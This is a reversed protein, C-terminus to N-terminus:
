TSIDQASRGNNAGSARISVEERGGLASQDGVQYVNAMYDSFSEVNTYDIVNTYKYERFRFMTERMRSM